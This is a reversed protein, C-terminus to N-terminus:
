RSRHSAWDVLADVLGAMTHVAAEVAPERGARRLADATVPGICALHPPLRDAGVVECFREFTSPATFCAVDARALAAVVDEPPTAPRTRYAEVVDVQWGLAELGRPLTDRAVAARALLVRGPGSPFVELLSEAVYRPPILDAPLHAGSLVGATAPGIAALRVGALRRADPVEGLVARAGNVSTVVLWDYASVDGLAARLGAGGDAPPDIRITPLDLVRAGLRRLPRSLAAAQEVARTVVVTLGLLPRAQSGDVLRDLARRDADAAPGPVVDDVPPGALGDGAVLQVVRRPDATRATAVAEAGATGAADATDGTDAAGAVLLQAEPRALARALPLLSAEAVVVVDAAGLAEAARAGLLDLDAPGAGVRIVPM